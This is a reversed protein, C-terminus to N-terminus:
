RREYRFNWNSGSNCREDRLITPFPLYHRFLHVNAKLDLRRAYGKIRLEIMPYSLRFGTRALWLAQTPPPPKRKRYGAALEGRATALYRELWYAANTTLPVIRDQEGKGARVLLRRARLELDYVELRWCEAHRIGTAYLVEMLARDRQGIATSLEPAEILRKIEAENLVRPLAREGIPLRIRAGPNDLRYGQQQLWVFFLRVAQFWHTVTGPALPRNPRHENQLYLLFDRLHSENVARWEKLQAARSAWDIFLELAYQSSNQRAQSIGCAAQWQLYENVRSRM